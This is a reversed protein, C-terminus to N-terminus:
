SALAALAAMTNRQMTTGVAVEGAVQTQLEAQVMALLLVLVQAVVVQAVLVVKHALVLHEVAVAALMFFVNGLLPLVCGQAVLVALQEV